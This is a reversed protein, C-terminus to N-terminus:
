LLIRHCEHLEGNTPPHTIFGCTSVEMRMPTFLDESAEIGMNRHPHTPDNCIQIGFKRCQNPNILSKEMRNGFWLGQLFEMIVVEGSYFTLETVVICIPVNMQEAYEPLFPSM